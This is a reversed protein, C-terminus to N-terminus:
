ADRALVARMEDIAQRLTVTPDVAVPEPPLPQFHTHYGPWDSDGPAGCWPPEVIPFRHWLVAGMDEHYHEIPWAHHAQPM